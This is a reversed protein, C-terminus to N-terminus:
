KKLNVAADHRPVLFTQDSLRKCCYVGSNNFLRLLELIASIFSFISSLLLLISSIFEVKSKISIVGKKKTKKKAKKSM